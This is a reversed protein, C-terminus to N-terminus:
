ESTPINLAPTIIIGLYDLSRARAPKTSINHKVDPQEARDGRARGSMGPLTQEGHWGPM